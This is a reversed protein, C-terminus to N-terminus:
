FGENRQDDPIDLKKTVTKIRGMETKLSGLKTKGYSALVSDTLTAWLRNIDPDADADGAYKKFCTIASNANKITGEKDTPKPTTLIPTVTESWTGKFDTPTHPEPDPTPEAPSQEEFHYDWLEARTVDSVEKGDVNAHLLKITVHWLDDDM